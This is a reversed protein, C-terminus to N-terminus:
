REESGSRESALLAEESHFVIGIFSTRGFFTLLWCSHIFEDSPMPLFRNHTLRTLFPWLPLEESNVFPGTLDRYVPLKDGTCAFHVSVKPVDHLDFPLREAVSSPFDFAFGGGVCGAFLESIDKRSRDARAAGLLEGDFRVELQVSEGVAQENVAWGGVSREDLSDVFGRM